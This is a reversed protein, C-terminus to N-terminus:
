KLTVKLMEAASAAVPYLRSHRLGAVWLLEDGKVLLPVSGKRDDPIKADRFIDSVKRSGNMGFPKIRDGQQWSRWSLPEGVLVDTSFYAVKDSPEIVGGAVREFIFPDTSLTTDDEVVKRVVGRDILWVGGPTIFRKGSVGSSAAALVDDTQGRSFGENRLWEFLIYPASPEEKVLLEVKIGRDAEFYKGKLRNLQGTIFDRAESLHEMTAAVAMDADGFREKLAPIAVNRLHNRSYENSLNSSDTVYTLGSERLYELIDARSVGLLPRYVKVPQRSLSKMGCLGNIGAGRMLNLFFTEVNDDRHHAVAVGEAGYLDILAAFWDYRLERCAMEVSANHERRYAAVDVKTTVYEVGIKCAMERAFAEDRDSEEGRLGFHCHAAVCRVGCETMAKLLAVSDAGGSLGVIFTSHRLSHESLGLGNRVAMLILHEKM